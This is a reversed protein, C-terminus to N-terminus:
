GSELGLQTRAGYFLGVTDDASSIGGIDSINYLIIDKGFKQYAIGISVSEVIGYRDEFAISCNMLGTLLDRADPNWDRPDIVYSIRTAGNRLGPMSADDRSLLILSYTDGEINPDDQYQTVSETLESGRLTCLMSEPMPVVLDSLNAISLTTTNLAFRTEPSNVRIVAREPYISESVRDVILLCLSVTTAILPITGGIIKLLGTSQSAGCHRCRSAFKSISELCERCPIEGPLQNSM